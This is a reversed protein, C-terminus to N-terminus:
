EKSAIHHGTQTPAGSGERTATQRGNLVIDYHIGYGIHQIDHCSLGLGARLEEEWSSPVATLGGCGAGGAAGIVLLALLSASKVNLM